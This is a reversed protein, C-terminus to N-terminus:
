REEEPAGTRFCIVGIMHLADLQDPDIALADRYLREADRLAGRQQAALAADMLARLQDSRNVLAGCCHKYRKGSGCPCPDNRSRPVPATPTVPAEM